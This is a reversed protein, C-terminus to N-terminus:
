VPAPAGESGATKVKAGRARKRPTPAATTTGRKRVATAGGNVKAAAARKPAFRGHRDAFAFAISGKRPRRRNSIRPAQLSYLPRRWVTRPWELEAPWNLDFFDSARRASATTCDNGKLLDKILHDNSAILLGLRTPLMGTNAMYAQALMVIADRTYVFM